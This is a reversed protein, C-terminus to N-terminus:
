VARESLAMVAVSLKVTQKPGLLRRRIRSALGASEEAVAIDFLPQDRMTEPWMVRTKWEASACLGAGLDANLLGALRVLTEDADVAYFSAQHYTGGAEVFVFFYDDAWPGNGNTYEGVAVLRSIPLEWVVGRWHYALVGGHLALRGSERERDQSEM